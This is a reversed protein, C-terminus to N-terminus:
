RFTLTSLHSELRRGPCATNKFDKHFFVQRGSPQFEGLNAMPDYSGYDPHSADTRLWILFDAIAPLRSAIDEDRVSRNHFDGAFSLAIGRTNHGKTHAGTRDEGRGECVFVNGTKRMLFVVFNYPVDAGLDKRRVIQLRRMMNFVEAETEWVNPSNDSGDPMVTHHCIVHTRADRAVRHGRRPLSTDAGWDARSFLTLNESLQVGM